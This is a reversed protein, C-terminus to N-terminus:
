NVIHIKGSGVLGKITHDAGNYIKLTGPSTADGIKVSGSSTTLEYNYHNLISNTQISINGSSATLETNPGLGSQRGTISGSSVALKGLATVRELHVKGSSVKADVRGKLDTVTLIGSSGEGNIRGEIKHFNVKGSSFHANIRGLLDEGHVEGSSVSFTIGSSSIKKASIKGSSATLHSITNRINEVHLNGSSVGLNIELDEPGTLNIYGESKKLSGGTSKVEIILRDDKVHYNIKAGSNTNILAELSVKDKTPDGIYSVDLFVGEVMISKIEPFDQQIETILSSEEGVCSSITGLLLFSAVSKCIGSYIQRNVKHAINM